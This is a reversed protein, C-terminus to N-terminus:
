EVKFLEYRDPFQSEILLVYTDAAAEGMDVTDSMKIFMLCDSSFEKNDETLEHEGFAIYVYQNGGPTTVPESIEYIRNTVTTPRNDNESNPYSITLADRTFRAKINSEYTFTMDHGSLFSVLRLQKGIFFSASDIPLVEISKYENDVTDVLGSLVDVPIDLEIGQTTDETESTKGNNTAADTDANPQIEGRVLKDAYDDATQPKKSCGVAYILMSISLFVTLIKKM